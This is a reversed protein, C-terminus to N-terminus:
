TGFRRRDPMQREAANGEPVGQGPIGAMTSAGGSCCSRAGRLALYHAYGPLEIATIGSSHLELGLRTQLEHVVDAWDAM